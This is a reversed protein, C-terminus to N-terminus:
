STSSSRFRNWTVSLPITTMGFPMRSSGDYRVHGADTTGRAARADLPRGSHPAAGAASDERAGTAEAGRRARPASGRPPSLRRGSGDARPAVSACVDFAAQRTLTARLTVFAM